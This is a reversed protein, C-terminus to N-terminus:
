ARTLRTEGERRRHPDARPVCLAGNTHNDQGGPSRKTVKVARRRPGRLVQSTGATDDGGATRRAASAEGDGDGDGEPDVGATGVSWSAWSLAVFAALQTSCFQDVHSAIPSCIRSITTTATASRATTRRAIVWSISRIFRM